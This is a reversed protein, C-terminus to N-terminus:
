GRACLAARLAAFADSLDRGAGETTVADELENLAQSAGGMANEDTQIANPGELAHFHLSARDNTGAAAMAVFDEESVSYADLAHDDYAARALEAAGAPADNPNLDKARFEADELAALIEQGHDHPVLLIRHIQGDWYELWGAVEEQLIRGLSAVGGDRLVRENLFERVRLLLAVSM